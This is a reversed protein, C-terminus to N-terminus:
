DCVLPEFLVLGATVFALDFAALIRMWQWVESMPAGNLLERTAVVGCLLAPAIVPFLAVALVLDRARTRVGMAAFLNGTAAFGITGLALLGAIPGLHRSLDLNFLVAVELLLACEVVALFALTGFTKGLYIAARPIPASLLARFADNERERSWSRSMALVGAFALAVWLVGPAVQRASNDDVYFSLSTIVAVLSAFLATTIVVEGTRLEIRLDKRLVLWSASLLSM